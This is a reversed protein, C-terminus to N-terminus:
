DFWPFMLPFHSLCTIIVGFSHIGLKDNRNKSNSSRCNGTSQLKVDNIRRMAKIRLVASERVNGGLKTDTTTSICIIATRMREGEEEEVEMTYGGSDRNNRHREGNGNMKSNISHRKWIKKSRKRKRLRGSNRGCNGNSWRGSARNNPSIM